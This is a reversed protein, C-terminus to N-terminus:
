SVKLMTLAPSKRSSTVLNAAEVLNGIEAASYHTTIRGAKHGLLDQRDELSVGASRLRRGFTHKLDHVRVRRFGDPCERGFEKRYKAAARRRAGRWGSSQMRALPQDEFTFVFREHVGRMEEIVASAVDNMVVLRPEGNKVHEGPIVFVSKGIEPVKREWDWRLQCVEQDRTGTNVKFLAMRELHGALEGFLLRQEDWDLPYPQRKAYKTPLQILPAESLWTLGNERWVRAALVLVRRVVALNRNITGQALHKSAELYPRLTDSHVQDLRLGGIHRDLQELALADRAISRKHAYETLYKTAAQRFM